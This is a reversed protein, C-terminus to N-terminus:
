NNSLFEMKKQSEDLSLLIQMFNSFTKKTDEFSKELKVEVSENIKYLRGEVVVTLNLFDKKLESKLKDNFNFISDINEKGA